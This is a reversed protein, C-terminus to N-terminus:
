AQLQNLKIRKEKERRYAEGVKSISGRKIKLKNLIGTLWLPMNHLVKIEMFILEENMLPIGELSTHLNLDTQRYRPNFDFTVRVESNDKYFSEREYIILIQPILDKYYNRFYTLERSIQSDEFNGRYNMFDKAIQEKVPIRRKYVLGETKRKIELFCPSDPKALGYSRLRLKEKFAPKDISKRILTFSPTDYYISQITSIGYKDVKMYKLLEEKMKLYDNPTLKYKLEYREFVQTFKEM